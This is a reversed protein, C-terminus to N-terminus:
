VPEISSREAERGIQGYLHAQVLEGLFAAAPITVLLGILLALTGVLLGVIFLALGVVANIIVAIVINAINDRLLQFIEAFDFGSSFEDTRAFRIVLVPEVLAYVIGVLASLCGCCVSILVMPGQIDSNETLAAPLSTGVSLIILPIAWILQIAFLKFGKLLL